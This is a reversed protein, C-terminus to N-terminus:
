GVVVDYADIYNSLTHLKPDSTFAKEVEKFKALSGHEMVGPWRIYFRRMSETLLNFAGLITQFSETTTDKLDDPNIEVGQRLGRDEEDPDNPIAGVDVMVLSDTERVLVCQEPRSLDAEMQGGNEVFYVIYGLSSSIAQDFKEAEEQTAESAYVAHEFTVHEGVNPAVACLTPMDRGYEQSYSSAIVFQHEVVPIGTIAEYQELIKDYQEAVERLEEVGGRLAM